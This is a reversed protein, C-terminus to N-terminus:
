IVYYAKEQEHRIRVADALTLIKLRGAEERLKGPADPQLFPHTSQFAPLKIAEEVVRKITPYDNINV